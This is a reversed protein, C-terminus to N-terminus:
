ERNSIQLIVESFKGDAIRFGRAQWKGGTRYWILQVVPYMAEAMDTPSPHDPGKPHSHYIGVLELGAAEIRQFAHWQARPAMRFRVPSRAANPVGRTTEVRDGKGKPSRRGALLGCAELPARRAVHRRMAQWHSRSLILRDSM